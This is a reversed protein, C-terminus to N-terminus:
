RESNIWQIWNQMTSQNILNGGGQHNSGTFSKVVLPSNMPIALDLRGLTRACINSDTGSSMDFATGQGHCRVCANAMVPKVISTFGGLNKCATAATSKLQSFSVSLRDAGAGKDIQLLIPTTMLVKGNKSLPVIQDLLSYAVENSRIVGNVAFRIDQVLAASSPTTLKPNKLRYSFGDAKQIDVSFTAGNLNPSITDSDSDLAWTLTIFNAPTDGGIPLASPIPTGVTNVRISSTRPTAASASPSLANKWATIASQMEAANADCDSWCFHRDPKLRLVLRSNAPTELNVKSGNVLSDHAAKVDLSTFFPQVSSTHCGACYNRVLPYTTVRFADVSSTTPSPSPMPTPPAPAPAPTPPPTYQADKWSVGPNKNHCAICDGMGHTTHNFSGVLTTPRRAAHCDSCSTLTNTHTFLATSWSQGAGSSHCSVCDGKGYIQHNFFNQVSSPRTGNHCEACTAPAPVHNFPKVLSKWGSSVHCLICDSGRGHTINAGPMPRQAIHCPSCTKEDGLHKFSPSKRSESGVRPREVKCGSFFALTVVFLVFLSPGSRFPLFSFLTLITRLTERLV